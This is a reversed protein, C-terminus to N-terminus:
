KLNEQARESKSKCISLACELQPLPQVTSPLSKVNSKVASENCNAQCEYDILSSPLLYFLFSKNEALCHFADSVCQSWQGVEVILGAFQIISVDPLKSTDVRQQMTQSSPPSQLCTNKFNMPVVTGVYLTKQYVFRVLFKCACAHVCVHVYTCCLFMWLM